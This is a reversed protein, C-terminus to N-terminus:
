FSAVPPSLPSAGHSLTRGTLSVGECGRIETTIRFTTQTPMTAWAPKTGINQSSPCGFNAANLTSLTVEHTTDANSFRRPFLVAALATATRPGNVLVLREGAEPSASAEAESGIPGELNVVGRAPALADAVARLRQAGGTGLHVDGGFWLQRPTACGGGAVLLM